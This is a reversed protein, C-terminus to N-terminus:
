NIYRAFRLIWRVGYWIAVAAIYAATIQIMRGIPVFYNIYGMWDGLSVSLDRFPSDPLVSLVATIAAGLADLISQLIDM